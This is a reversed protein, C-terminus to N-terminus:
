IAIQKQDYTYVVKSRLMSNEQTDYRPRQYEIPIDKSIQFRPTSLTMAFINADM